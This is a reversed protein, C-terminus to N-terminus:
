KKNSFYQNETSVCKPKHTVDEQAHTLKSMEDSIQFQLISRLLSQKLGSRDESEKM